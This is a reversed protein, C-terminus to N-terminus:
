SQNKSGSIADAIATIIPGLAGFVATLISIIDDSGTGTWSIAKSVPKIHAM